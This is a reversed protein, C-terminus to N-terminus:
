GPVFQRLFAQALPTDLRAEYGHGVCQKFGASHVAALINTNQWLVTGGSDGFCTGGGTGKAGSLSWFSSDGVFYTKILQSTSVYRASIDVLQSGKYKQIGYGVKTFSTRPGPKAGAFQNLTPLAAFGVDTVPRALRIVGIDTGVDTLAFTDLRPFDPHPVSSAIPTIRNVGDTLDRDFTVGLISLGAPRDVLCHAATVFVTPAVLTGSCYAIPDPGFEGDVAVIAGSYTHTLDPTGNTIARAPTALTLALTAASAFLVLRRFMKLYEM